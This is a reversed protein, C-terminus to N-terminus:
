FSIFHRPDDDLTPLDVACVVECQAQYLRCRLSQLQHSPCSKLPHSVAEVFMEGASRVAQSLDVLLCHHRWQKWTVTSPLSPNRWSEPLQYVRLQANESNMLDTTSPDAVHSRGNLHYSTTMAITMKTTKMPRTPWSLEPTLFSLVENTWQIHGHETHNQNQSLCHEICVPIVRDTRTRVQQEHGISQL